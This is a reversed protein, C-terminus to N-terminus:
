AKIWDQQLNVGKVSKAKPPTRALFTKVKMKHIYKKAKADQCGKGTLCSYGVTVTGGKQKRAVTQMPSGCKGCMKPARTLSIIKSNQLKKIDVPLKEKPFFGLHTPTSVMDNATKGFNLLKRDRSASGNVREPTPEDFEM